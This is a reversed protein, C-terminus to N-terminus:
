AEDKIEEAPESTRKQRNSKRETKGERKRRKKSEDGKKGRNKWQEIAEDIQTEGLGALALEKRKWTEKRDTADNGHRELRIEAERKTALVKAAYLSVEKDPIDLKDM